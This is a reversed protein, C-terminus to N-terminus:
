ATSLTFSFFETCHCVNCEDYASETFRSLHSLWKGSSYFYSWGKMELKLSRKRGMHGVGHQADKGPLSVTWNQLWTFENSRAMEGFQLEGCCEAFPVMVWVLWWPSERALHGRRPSSWIPDTEGRIERVLDRWSEQVWREVWRRDGVMTEKDGLRCKPWQTREFCLVTM